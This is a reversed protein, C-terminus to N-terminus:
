TELDGRTVQFTHCDFIRQVRDVLLELLLYSTAMQMNVDDGM